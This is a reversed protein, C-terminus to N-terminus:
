AFFLGVLERQDVKGSRSRRGENKEGGEKSARDREPRSGSVCGHNADVVIRISGLLGGGRFTPVKDAFTLLRGRFWAMERMTLGPQDLDIQGCGDASRSLGSAGWRQADVRRASVMEEM